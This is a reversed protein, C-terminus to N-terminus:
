TLRERERRPHNPNRFEERRFGINNRLSLDLQSVVRPLIKQKLTMKVRVLRPLYM